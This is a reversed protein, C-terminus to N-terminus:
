RWLLTDADRPANALRGVYTCGALRYVDIRSEGLINLSASPHRSVALYGDRSVTRAWVPESGQLPFRCRERGRVDNVVCTEGGIRETPSCNVVAGAPADVRYSQLAGPRIAKAGHQIALAEGRLPPQLSIRRPSLAHPAYIAAVPLDGDYGVVVLSQSSGTENGVCAALVLAAGFAAAFRLVM